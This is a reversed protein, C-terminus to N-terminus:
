EDLFKKLRSSRGIYPMRIGMQRLVASDLSVVREPSFSYHEATEQLSHEEQGCLGFRYIAYERLSGVLQELRANM